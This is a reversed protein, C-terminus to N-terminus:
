RNQKTKDLLEIYKSSGTVGKQADSDDQYNSSDTPQNEPAMFHRRYGIFWERYDDVELQRHNKAETAAVELSRGAEVMYENRTGVGHCLPEVAVKGRFVKVTSTQGVQGLMALLLSGSALHARPIAATFQSSRAANIFDQSVAKSQRHSSVSYITGRVSVVANPTITRFKTGQRIVRVWTHGHKLRYGSELLQIFTKGKLKLQTGDAYLLSAAGSANCRLRDGPNISSGSSCPQWVSAKPRLVEILGSVEVLRVSAALILSTHFFFAFTVVLCLSTVYSSRM